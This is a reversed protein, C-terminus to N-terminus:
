FKRVCRIAYASGKNLPYQGGYGKFNQGWVFGINYESSSWYMDGEFGGLQDKQHFLISLEAKAPLYWDGYNGERCSACANAAFEGLINDSTYQAIILSTNREGAFLGDGVANVLRDGHDGYLQPTTARGNRWSINEHQDNVPCM